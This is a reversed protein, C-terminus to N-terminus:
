DTMNGRQAETEELLIPVTYVKGQLPTSLVVSIESCTQAEPTGPFYRDKHQM